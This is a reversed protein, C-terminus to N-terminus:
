KWVFPEQRLREAAIESQQISLLSPQHLREIAIDCYDKEVEFGIAPYGLDKAARLTTGSGMYPDIILTSVPLRLQGIIWRMLSIPKQTPHLKHGRSLNEEGQRVIGRWKQYHIRAAGPQNTWILECDSNNDPSSGCRKDWILWKGSAPLKDAFHNAGFIALTKFRLLHRPNFPKDDGAIPKWDRGRQMLPTRRSLSSKKRSGDRIFVANIGYPPDTIIAASQDLTQLIKGRRCDGLYITIGEQQYYPTM